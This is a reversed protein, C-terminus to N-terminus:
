FEEDDDEEAEEDDTEAEGEVEEEEDELFDEDEDEFDEGEEFEDDDGFVEDEDDFDDEDEVALAPGFAPMGVELATGTLRWPEPSPTTEPEMVADLLRDAMIWRGIHQEEVWKM